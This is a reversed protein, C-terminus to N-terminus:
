SPMKYKIMEQAEKKYTWWLNNLKNSPIHKKRFIFKKFDPTLKTYWPKKGLFHYIKAERLLLKNNLTQEESVDIQEKLVRVNYVPPIVFYRNGSLVAKIYSYYM